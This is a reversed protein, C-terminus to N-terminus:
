EKYVHVFLNVTSHIRHRFVHLTRFHHFRTSHINRCKIDIHYLWISVNCRQGFQHVIDDGLTNLLQWLCRHYIIATRHTRFKQTDGVQVFQLRQPQVGMRYFSGDVVIINHEFGETHTVTYVM